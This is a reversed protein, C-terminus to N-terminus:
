FQFSVILIEQKATNCFKVFNVHLCLKCLECTLVTWALLTGTSGFCLSIIFYSFVSVTTIIFFFIAIIFCVNRLYFKMQQAVIAIRIQLVNIKTVVQLDNMQIEPNSKLM